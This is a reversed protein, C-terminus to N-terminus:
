ERSLLSAVLPRIKSRLISELQSEFFFNPVYPIDIPVIVVDFLMELDSAIEATHLEPNDFISQVERGFSVLLMVIEQGETITIKGDSLAERLAIAFKVFRDAVHDNKFDLSQFDLTKLHDLLTVLKENM